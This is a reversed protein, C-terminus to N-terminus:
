GNPVGYTRNVVIDAEIQAWVQAGDVMFDLTRKGIRPIQALSGMITEVAMAQEVDACGRLFTQLRSEDVTPTSDSVWHITVPVVIRVQSAPSYEWREERLELVIFPRPGDPAILAEVNHNPDLKVATAAVTYHYGGAVTIAQLATQLNLLVRYEIPEAPM